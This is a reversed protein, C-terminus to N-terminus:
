KSKKVARVIAKVQWSQIKLYFEIAEAALFSTAKGTSSALKELQERTKTQIRISLTTLPQHSM